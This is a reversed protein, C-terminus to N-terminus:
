PTNCNVLLPQPRPLPTFLSTRIGITTGPPYWSISSTTFFDFQGGGKNRKKPPPHFFNIDLSLFVLAILSSSDWFYSSAFNSVYHQSHPFPFTNMNTLSLQLLSTLFADCWLNFLIGLIPQGCFWNSWNYFFSFGGAGLLFINQAVQRKVAWMPNWSLFNRSNREMWLLWLIDHPIARFVRCHVRRGLFSEGALLQHRISGPVM